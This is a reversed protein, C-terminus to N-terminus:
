AAKSQETYAPLTRVFTQIRRFQTEVEEFLAPANDLIGDRAETAIRKLMPVVAVMGYSRSSGACAQAIRCVENADNAEIASKLKGLDRETGRLYISVLFERDYPDNNSVLNLQEFDILPENNM